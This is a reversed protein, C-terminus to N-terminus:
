APPCARHHVPLNAQKGKKDTEALVTSALVAVAALSSGLRIM